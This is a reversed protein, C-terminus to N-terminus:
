NPFASPYPSYFVDSGPAITPPLGLAQFEEVLPKVAGPVLYSKGSVAPESEPLQIVVSPAVPASRALAQVRRKVEDLSTLVENGVRYTKSDVVGVVILMEQVAGSLELPEGTEEQYWAKWGEPDRGLENGTLARLTTLAADVVRGRQSPVMQILASLIENRHGKLLDKRDALPALVYACKQQDTWSASELASILPELDLEVDESHEEVLPHLTLCHNNHSTSPSSRILAVINTVVAQWDPRQALFARAQKADELVEPRLAVDLLGKSLRSLKPLGDDLKRKLALVQGGAPDSLILLDNASDRAEVLWFRSTRISDSKELKLALFRKGKDMYASFEGPTSNLEFTGAALLEVHESRQGLWGPAHGSDKTLTLTIPAFSEGALVYTLESESEWDDSLRAALQDDLSGLPGASLVLFIPGIFRATASLRMGRVM